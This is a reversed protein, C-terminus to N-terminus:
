IFNNNSPPSPPVTQTALAVSPREQVASLASAHSSRASLVVLQAAGRQGCMQYRPSLVVSQGGQMMVM